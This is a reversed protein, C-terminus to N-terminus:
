PAARSERACERLPKGSLAKRLEDVRPKFSDDLAPLRLWYSRVETREQVVRATRVNRQTLEALAQQALAESGYGGLSVGPELSANRLPEFSVSRARLENKKKTVAEPNAFKGMYVIWRAPQLVVDLRWSGAPWSLNLLARLPTAQAEDFPGAEFCETPRRASAELRASEAASLLRLAEPRLQQQMRQPERQETPGLGAIRLAGSSWAYFALNALLLLLVAARLM